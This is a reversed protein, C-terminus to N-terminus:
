PRACPPWVMHSPPLSVHLRVAGACRSGPAGASGHHDAPGGRRPRPRSRSHRGARGVGAGGGNSAPRDAGRRLRADPRHCPDAARGVGLCPARQVPLQAMGAPPLTESGAEGSAHATASARGATDAPGGRQDGARPAVESRQVPTLLAEAYHRPLCVFVPQLIESCASRLPESAPCRRGIGAAPRYTVTGVHLEHTAARPAPSLRM